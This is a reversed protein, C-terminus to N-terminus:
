SLDVKILRREDVLPLTPHVIHSEMFAWSPLAGLSECSTKVGRPSGVPFVMDAVGKAALHM